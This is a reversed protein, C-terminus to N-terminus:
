NYILFAKLLYVYLQLARKVLELLNDAIYLGDATENAKPLLNVWERYRAIIM